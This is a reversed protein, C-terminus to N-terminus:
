SAPTITFQINGAENMIAILSLDIHETIPFLSTNTIKLHFYLKNNFFLGNNLIQNDNLKLIFDYYKNITYEYGTSIVINDIVINSITLISNIYSTEGTRIKDSLIYMNILELPSSTEISCIYIESQGQLLNIEITPHHIIIFNEKKLNHNNILM